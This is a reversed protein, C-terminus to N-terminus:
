RGPAADMEARTSVSTCAALLQRRVAASSHHAVVWERGNAALRAATEPASLLGSVAAIWGARRMPSASTFVTPWVRVTPRM